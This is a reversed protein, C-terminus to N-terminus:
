SKVIIYFDSENIVILRTREFLWLLILALDIRKAYNKFELMTKPLQSKTNLKDWLRNCMYYPSHLVREKDATKM